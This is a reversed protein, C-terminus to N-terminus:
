KKTCSLFNKEVKFCVIGLLFNLYFESLVGSGVGSSAISGVLCLFDLSFNCCINIFSIRALSIYIHYFIKFNNSIDSDITKLM